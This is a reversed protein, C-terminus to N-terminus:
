FGPAFEGVTFYTTWHTSNQKCTLSTSVSTILLHQVPRGAKKKIPPLKQVPNNKTQKKLGIGVIMTFSCRVLGSSYVMPKLSQKAESEQLTHPIFLSHQGTYLPFSSLYMYSVLNLHAM